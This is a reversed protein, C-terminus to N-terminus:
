FSLYRELIIGLDYTIYGLSSLDYVLVKATPGASILIKLENKDLLKNSDILAFIKELIKPYDQFANIRAIKVFYIDKNVYNRSFKEYVQRDNCVIILKKSEMWLKQLIEMNLVRGLMADGYLNRRDFHNGFLFRTSKWLEYKGKNEDQFLTKARQIENVPIALL